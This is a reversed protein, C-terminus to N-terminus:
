DHSSVMANSGNNLHDINDQDISQNISQNASPSCEKVNFNNAHRQLISLDLYFPFQRPYPAIAGRISLIPDPVLYGADGDDAVGVAAFSGEDLGQGFVAIQHRLIFEKGRQVHCGVHASQGIVDHGEIHVCDSEDRVNGGTQNRGEGRHQLFDGQGVDNDM